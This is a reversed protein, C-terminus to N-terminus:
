LAKLKKSFQICVMTNLSGPIGGKILLLGRQSDVQMIKLKQVTCRHHGLHGAMKKGKFVRGPTQNQGISGPARHSLSNGHTADQSAFNHRKIVGAFGKGKTKGIVDVRDGPKFMDVTLEMGVHFQDTKDENAKIRYKEGPILRFERIGGGTPELKAQAFHGAQAKSLKTGERGGVSVQLAWYKEKELTKIQIVRNQTVRVVSVPISCHQEADFIRTMGCKTGFLGVM